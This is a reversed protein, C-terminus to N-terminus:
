VSRDTEALPYYSGEWNVRHMSIPVDLDVPGICYHPALCAAIAKEESSFVGQLEWSCDCGHCTFAQLVAWLQTAM